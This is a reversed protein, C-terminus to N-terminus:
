KAERVKSAALVVKKAANALGEAAIVSLGSEELIRKGEKANTGELRVVLPVTVGVEKAAEVIGEAILDCRAIGGFINVLIANIREDNALFKFATAIRESGAGGGVDLFNAPEGDYYHIIDMTAMALGAGNVMCGIDGKLKIYNLKHKKAELEKADEESTDRMERIQRHKFLANDDFQMKADLAIIEGEASVILPNYEVLLADYHMFINYTSMIVNAMKIVMDGSLGLSFAIRRAQYPKISIVPDVLEKIIKDSPVSEIDIGGEASAIILVYGTSRDITIAFYMETEIVSASEVYIKKVEQGEKGTQATVLVSGLMSEAHKEIDNISDVIRIGSLGSDDDIFHGRGRGGAHIQAKLVWRGGGNIARAIEVADEPTTAVGGVPTLVNYEKLIQKAQYEHINM